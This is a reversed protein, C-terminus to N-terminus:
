KKSHYRFPRKHNNNQKLLVNLTKPKFHSVHFLSHTLFNARSGNKIQALIRQTQTACMEVVFRPNVATCRARGETLIVLFIDREVHLRLCRLFDRRDSLSIIDSFQHLSQSPIIITPHSLTNKGVTVHYGTLPYSVQRGLEGTGVHRIIQM